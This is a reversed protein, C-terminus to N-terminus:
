TFADKFFKKRFCFLLHFQMEADSFKQKETLNKKQDSFVV